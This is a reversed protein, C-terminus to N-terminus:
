CRWYYTDNRKDYNLYCTEGTLVDVRQRAAGGFIPGERYRAVGCIYLIFWIGFVVAALKFTGTIGVEWAKWLEKKFGESDRRAYKIAEWIGGVVGGVVGGLMALIFALIAYGVAVGGAMSWPNDAFKGIVWPTTFLVMGVFLKFFSEMRLHKPRTWAYKCFDGLV